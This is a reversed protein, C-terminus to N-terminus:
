WGSNQKVYGKLVEKLPIPYWYFKNHFVRNEVDFVEYNLSQDTENLTIRVGKAPKNLETEADKWRRLDWFRHEEFALEAMRERKLRERMQEQTMGAPYRARSSIVYNRRRLEFVASYVEITPGNAENMAEAYNLFAEAYRFIIWPKRTTTGRDIDVSADIFKRIYYGTKTATPASRLGDRGGDFTQLQRGKFTAGNHLIVAYFRLDRDVYPNQPNYNADTYITQGLRTDFADALTQTPNTYGLGGFSLPFNEREFSNTNTPQTALLVERSYPIRFVNEYNTEMGVGPGSMDLLAKAAAAARTWKSLDNDPNNLPSASYLLLRSKLAAASAKIARGKSADDNISPLYVMATDCDNVIREVLENFSLQPITSATETTLVRDVYPINQFRKVLEFHFMARLFVAEGKMKPRDRLPISNSEAITTTLKELFINTKRIGTYMEDWVNDPNASPNVAGNNFMHIMSGSNSHVAEDSGAALMAGDFRNFGPLLHNYINNLFGPAHYKDSFIIEETLTIDLEKDLYDSCSNFAILFIAAFFIVQIKNM